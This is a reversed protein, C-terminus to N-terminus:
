LHLWLMNYLMNCHVYLAHWLANWWANSCSYLILKHKSTIHKDGNSLNM